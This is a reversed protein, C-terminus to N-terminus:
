KLFQTSLTTHHIDDTSDDVGLSIVGSTQITIYPPSRLVLNMLYRSKVKTNNNLQDLKDIFKFKTHFIYSNSLNDSM